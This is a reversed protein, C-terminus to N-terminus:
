STEDGSPIVDACGVLGVTYSEISMQRELEEYPISSHPL